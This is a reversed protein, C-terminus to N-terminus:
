RHSGSGTCIIRGNWGKWGHTPTWCRKRSPTPTESPSRPKSTSSGPWSEDVANGSISPHPTISPKTPVPTPWRSISRAPGMPSFGSAICGRAGRTRIPGDSACPVGGATHTSGSIGTEVLARQDRQQKEHGSLCVPLGREYM